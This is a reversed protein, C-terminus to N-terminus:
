RPPMLLKATGAHFVPCQEKGFSSSMTQAFHRRPLSAFHFSSRKKLSHSPM